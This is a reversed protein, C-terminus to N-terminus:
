IRGSRGARVYTGGPVMLALGDLELSALARAVTRVPLGAQESVGEITRPLREDLLAWVAAEDGVPAPPAARRPRGALAELVDAPEEALAAGGALMADTGPSGPCCLVIRGARLAARATHLSGSGATAEVVVVADALGALTENRRLFSWRRLPADDTFPSALAGGAALIADFLWHNRRPYPASVGGAVVAATVGGAELAGAHAAADVGLAGGSLVAAHGALGAALGRARALGRGTAARAGVIAVTRDAAFVAADGRVYLIADPGAARALRPPLCGIAPRHTPSTLV